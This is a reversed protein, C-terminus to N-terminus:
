SYSSRRDVRDVDAKFARKYLKTIELESEDPAKREITTYLRRMKESIPEVKSVLTEERVRTLRGGKVVVRGDVL